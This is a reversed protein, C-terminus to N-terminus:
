NSHLKAPLKSLRLGQTVRKRASLTFDADEPLSKLYGYMITSTRCDTNLRSARTNELRNM